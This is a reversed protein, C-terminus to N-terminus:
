PAVTECYYNRIGHDRGAILLFNKFQVFKDKIIEVLFYKMYPSKSTFITDLHLHTSIIDAEQVRSIWEEPSKPIIDYFKVDGLRQLRDKQEQSLGLPQTVIIKYM